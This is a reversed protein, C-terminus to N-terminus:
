ASGRIRKEAVRLARQMLKGLKPEHVEKVLHLKVHRHVKGTGRLLGEPDELSAGNVLGLNVHKTYLSVVFVMEKYGSGFGFGINEEDSTVEAEPFVRLILSQLESTIELVEQPLDPFHQKIDM